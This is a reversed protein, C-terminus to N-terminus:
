FSGYSYFSPLQKMSIANTQAGTRLVSMTMVAIAVASPEHNARHAMSPACEASLIVLDTNPHSAHLVMAKTAANQKEMRSDAHKKLKPM